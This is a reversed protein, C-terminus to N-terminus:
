CQRGRISTTIRIRCGNWDTLTVPWLGGRPLRRPHGSRWRGSKLVLGPKLATCREAAEQVVALSCEPVLGRSRALASAALWLDALTVTRSIGALTVLM